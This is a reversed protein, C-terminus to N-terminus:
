RRFRAASSMRKSPCVTKGATRLVSPMAMEPNIYVHYHRGTAMHNALELCGIEVVRDGNDPSLGTTETDLVVERM